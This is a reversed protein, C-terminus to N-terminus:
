KILTLRVGGQINESIITFYYSGPALNLASSNINIITESSALSIKNQYVIQGLANVLTYVADENIDTEIKINTEDSFPNPYGTININKDLEIIGISVNIFQSKTITDSCGHSDWAVLTVDYLGYNNFYHFPDIDSSTLNDGFDWEYTSGSVTQNTFQVVDGSSINNQNVNFAAIPSSAIIEVKHPVSLCGNTNVAKVYVDETTASRNMTNGSTILNALANNGDYWNFTAGQENSSALILMSENECYMPQENTVPEEAVEVFIQNTDINSCGNTDTISYSIDSYGPVSLSPTFQNGTVGAGAYVGGLPSAHNLIVQNGDYCVSGLQNFNIGPKPNVKVTDYKTASCGNADTYAYSVIHNGSTTLVAPDYYSGNVGQGAYSGGAPSGGTLLVANTGICIEDLVDVLVTPSPLIQVNISETSSCGTTTNRYEYGVNTIGAGVDSANFYGSTVALGDYYGGLPYGGTLQFVPETECLPAIPQLNIIPSSNVIIDKQAVNSCGTAPDTITYFISHQGSGAITPDFLGANVGTGTWTGGTPYGQTLISIQANDCYPNISTIAVQPLDNVVINFSEQSVCGDTNTYFYHINHAGIGASSPYFYNNQLGGGSYTGGSPTINNLLVGGNDICMSNLVSSSLPTIANVKVNTSVTGICGNVDTYNLQINHNGVGSIVPNFEDNIVGVGSWYGTISNSIALAYESGNECMDPLPQAIVTIANNVLINQTESEDCGTVPDTYTYTIQHTGAGALSPDFIGNIVGTGTFVGNSPTAGSLLFPTENSCTTPLPAFTVYPAPQVIIGVTAFGSCGTTVENYTYTLVHTGVGALQPDFFGATVGNGSWVGGIPSAGSLIFISENICINSQSSLTVNPSAIVVISQTASGTCGNNSSYEYTITHSGLGAQSPYFYGNIVGTGSFTGGSPFGGVLEIAGENICKNQFPNLSVSPSPMININRPSETTCQTGVDTYSYTIQHTGVGAISPDLIGNSIGNGSYTGGQPYGTNLIISPATECIDQLPLQTVSPIPKVLVPTSGFDSCGTNPDVYTYTIISSGVGATIPDFYGNIVGSGTYTGGVPSGINLLPKAENFCLDSLSAVSVNPAAFVSITISSTSVCGNTNTYEYSVVHNGPGATNPYFYGNNIGTGSYFGGSPSGGNLAFAPDNECVSVVGNITVNPVAYVTISKTTISTCGSVADTYSYSVNHTGVGAVSPYFLGNAVGLGLYSGGLPFGGSLLFPTENECINQFDTLSTVPSPSVYINKSVSSACGTSPDTFSYTIQHTGVGSQTPDFIGNTVGAGSYIGGIPTGGTLAYGQESYCTSAFDVLAVAPTSKVEISIQSASTCGDTNNYTYTLVHTGVGAQSPYFYGNIIGQGSYIGGSPSGNTLEVPTGNQCVPLIPSLSVLPTANVIISETESESCGTITDTYSYTLNHVGAGSVQPDFYNGNTIGTGTWVGGSPTVDTLQFALEGQCIEDKVEIAVYPVGNITINKTIEGSCSSIPDVVTYTIQHVGVGAQSPDFVGNSVYDGTYVGNLPYGGSVLIPTTNYCSPTFDNLTVSPAQKVIISQTKSTGCGTSPNNYTYTINHIGIGAISPYFSGNVVGVGTYIGGSPNGGTLLTPDNSYCIDGIPNLNVPTVAKVTLGKTIDSSCGTTTDIYTYKIQHTGVGANSADFLAGSVGTGSWTGNSPFGGGLIFAPESSCIDTFDSLSVSPNQLVVISTTKESVCNTVPDTYTYTLFHSGVGATAPNFTGNSTGNGTWVGGAPTAGSLIFSVDNYCVPDFNGISINAPQTVTIQSVANDVCGKNNTVTYTVIHTGVGAQSPYFYGAVIGTGSYVGGNPNGGSLLLADSNECIDLLLPLTPNPSANVTINDTVSGSCGNGDVYSYSIVHTGIGADFPDFSGNTVGTGTWSGGSPSEGKLLFTPENECVIGQSGLSLVPAAFVLMKNTVESVCGSNGDVYSYTIDHNGVGSISPDFFGNVVGAGTWSGGSPSAGSLLFTTTNICVPPFLNVIVNPADIVTVNQTMSVECGNNDITYTISHVGVGAVSPYFKSGAVGLGTYMGGSPQGQTLNVEGANLCVEFIPAFSINESPKVNISISETTTCGTAQSVYNYTVQHTGQGAISPNFENGTVGIGSFTGGTISVYYLLDVNSSNECIDAVQNFTVAQTPLIIINKSISNSCGTPLNNFTYTITHTGVGATAPNFLGNSVGNGNYTGGVPSANQLIFPQENVCMSSFDVMSISPKQNITITGVDSASCGNGSTSTYTIQHTGVGLQDPYLYGNIVGNGTWVGNLPSGTNLLTAGDNECVPLFPAVSVNPAPNVTITKMASGDCGNGDSYTYTLVHDGAGATTPNFLNGSVGTGTWSGGSPVGGTLQFDGDNECVEPLDNISVIPNDYVIIPRNADVSCGTGPDTYTYTLDHVGLGANFTSFYGATVGNGTWVGGSPTAGGLELLGSSLCVGNLNSIVVLPTNNVTITTTASSSCGQIEVNYTITHTGVGALQPYFEGNVIGSGSYIGGSPSGINLALKDNDICMNTVPALGALPANIVELTKTSTGECGTIPDAYTYTISHVGIGANNPDFQNNIVGAGSYTGGLPTGGTLTFIGSGNCVNSLDLLTVTPVTRVVINKTATNSCSNVPDIFSYTLAHVGVGATNPYFYGNIIGTGSWVGGLPAGETLQFPQDSKCVEGLDTIAVSIANYVTVTQTQEVSCGNSEIRYFISHTGVGALSPYFKDAVVGPGTYTGGSPSAHILDLASSNQCMSPIPNFVVNEAPLVTITFNAKSNCNGITDILDYQITFTGQGAIAPNFTSGIIGTGSFTGRTPSVYDYLDISSSNECLANVSSLVINQIPKVTVTKTANNSCSTVLDTVTYTLAHTGVGSISPDFLGNAIGNGTWNGGSPSAGTLIFANGEACVDSFNPISLSPVNDVTINTSSINSCGENNVVEYTITHSGVGILSPYFYGSSVGNGTYSGGLPQGNLLELPTGNLCIDLLPSTTVNPASNIIIDESITSTCSNADTYSYTIQHTGVGSVSPDFQSGSVGTGSFTGGSPAQGSLTFAGKNECMSNFSSLSVSPSNLVTISTKGSSECGSIPDTFTYTLFHVGLGANSPDFLGNIIGNGTWLGGLPTAGSLPFSNNNICVADLVPVTVGNGEKVLVNQIATVTCGNSEISYTIQHTGLGSLSPYFYDGIVALGSYTGGSPTGSNLEIPDDNLCADLIPQFAINESPNIQISFQKSSTCGTIGSNAEYTITYTGQGAVSPDLLSDTVGTGSFTGGKPSVFNMLNLSGSNECLPNINSITINETTKVVINKSSTTNCGTNNNNYTYEILHVGVGATQPSFLGNSVGTGTWVGGLPFGGSLIFDSEGVCVDSFDALTVVPSPYIAITQSHEATCGDGNTYTYTVIHSGVGAQSPYLYGGIVGNGSYTGGSPSGGTLTIAGANECLPLFPSLSVNATANVNITNVESSSCGNNDTYLYTVNFTGAGTISPSFKNNVIGQGSWVGGTPTSYVLELDSENDCIDPINSLQIIPNDFVVIPNQKETTCGNNDTLSYTITHAGIGSNSADFFGANVGNGSWVGGSPTANSLAFLPETICISNFNNVSVSPIDNVIVQGVVVSNCGNNSVTYTIDFTGVGSVSPYFYGNIVGDGSYAGGSPTGQNLLIQGTNICVDAVPSMTAIPSSIVIIDENSKAVCGSTPETYNYTLSHTGVGANVIMFENNLVGTGSWTGGTPNGDPLAVNLGGLCVNALSSTSVVPVPKVTITKIVENSCGSIIDNFAYKINHTGVGALLPDFSGNNIGNGTWTGGTPIAGTLIFAQDGVCVDNFSPVSVIPEQKVVISTNAEASCGNPNTKTYTLNQTGVGSVTPYFYGAIVGTGSWVGDSPNGGTLEVESGNACIDLLPSVTTAPSQNVVIDKTTSSACGNVDAYTYTITYTGQGAVSPNFLGGSVGTGTWTGGIPLGGELTIPAENDCNDNFAALSIAPSNVVTITKIVTSECGTIQDTYTYTIPHVGLGANAPDFFGANVGTGAYLGGSPIAGSLVFSAENVCVQNFDNLTVPTGDKIDVQQNASVECGNNTITYTITHTGIGAVTPYLKGAIVGNGSYTGGSPTGTNLLVEGDSLCVDVITQFAINESPNVQIQFQQTSTCGTIGSNAEYTLTVTGQGAVSPDFMTDTVGIGTFTGGIPTVYDMLNIASSNECLPNITAVIINETTKVVLNKSVTKECGSNGDQYTYSISHAGVGATLPNFIGNTVGTGTWTGNIPSGGSLIFQPENVCVPNFDALTVTPAPSVSISQSSSATCGDGNTVAYTVTHSGIGAQTPYYYGGIVGNGSYTGNSPSGGSLSFSNENSCTPLFPALSTNPKENVEQNITESDSCGNIDTFSYTLITTGTGAVLPDFINGSTGSGTWSGGSPTAGTLLVAGENECVDSRNLISVTPNNNVVITKSVKSSCGTTNDTFEYSIAHAGVGSNSADFYGNTVGTGSWVGSPPTAGTLQFLPTTNCVDTFNNLAISPQAEVTIDRSATSVCNGNNVTYTLTHNGQGAISPYFYGNIIGTGSYIGGSPSGSTLNVQAINECVKGSGIPSFGAVPSSIVTINSTKSNSCSTTPDLYTYTIVHTGVGAVSPDFFGASVGLGSYVGGAPSGVLLEIASSGLCVDDFTSINVAPLSKVLINKSITNSCGSLPDTYNYTISHVGIGATFADFFNNTVGTGTYVGNTPNAGNLQFLNENVCVDIFDQQLLYPKERVEVTFTEASSCNNQSVSYTLVHTGVGASQPYFRGGSVGNGSYIGGTPFGNDLVFDSESICVPNVNTLVINVEQYVQLNKTESASCGSSPDAYTYTIPHVGAGAVSPDFSNGSVGTGSYTGGLPSVGLLNITSANTCTSNLDNFTISPVAKVIINKSAISSCGNGDTFTYTIPHVGVGANVPNFQGNSIGSGSYVGGSPLGGSVIFPSTTLCVDQFSSISATPTPYVTIDRSASSSCGNGNEYEYQITFDGAGVLSPYFKGGIVGTGSYTGGSPTGSTLTFETENGCVPLMPSVGTIPSATVEIDRILASTCGNGDTYEYTLDFNGVGSTLPNFETGSVGIGTFSGGTPNVLTSLEKKGGDECLDYLTNFTINPPSNVKIIGSKSESCNTINDTLIYEVQHVGIGASTPNFFGNTVGDGSWVGGQKSVFTSLDLLTNNSCNDSISTLTFTPSPNVTIDFTESSGCGNGTTFNYTITHIGIGAIAPNFNDGSVGNGSYIGGLPSAYDILSIVTGNSCENNIANITINPSNVIDVNSTVVTECGNSNVYTYTIIFNGIGGVTPNFSNGAGGNWTFLGGPVSVYQTLDIDGSLLCHQGINSFLINTNEYVNVTANEEVVCNNADTLSYNLNFIGQGSQGPYFYGNTVSTGSWIGGSPSAGTLEVGTENTCVDSITPMSLSPAQKVEVTFPFNVSCGNNSSYIFSIQHTGVGATTPNFNYGVVGTGSYVGTNPSVYDRLDTIIGNDCLDSQSIQTVTPTGIVSVTQTKSVSCGSVPDLFDFTLQHNGLGALAPNFTSGIVGAGSFTGTSPNVFNLLNVSTGTICVDGIPNFVVNSTINVTINKSIVDSCGIQDTVTYTIPHVGVGASTPNFFGASVGNGAYTGGTPSGGSLLFVDDNDCYNTFPVHSIVPLSNVYVVIIETSTCGGSNEYSYIISENTGILASPNFQNGIIGSGTPKGAFSGGTPSVYDELNIIPDNKCMDPIYVPIITTSESVVVNISKVIECGVGQYTYDLTYTGGNAIQSPYFVGNSVGAGTFTGGAPSVFPALVIPADGTCVSAIPNFVVTEVPSVTITHPTTVTCNGDVYTYTLNHVGAGASAPYFYGASIGTGTWTGNSPTANLIFPDENVCAINQTTIVVSPSATVSLNLTGTNICGTAQDTYSYTIVHNGIGATQASFTTQDFLVGNGSFTGGNPSVYNMLSFDSTGTCFTPYPAITIVPLANTNITIPTANESPCYLYESCVQGQYKQCSRDLNYFNIIPTAPSFLGTIMRTSGTSSPIEFHNPLQAISPNQLRMYYSGDSNQHLDNVVIDFTENECGDFTSNHITVDNPYPRINLNQFTSVSASKCYNNVATVSLTSNSNLQYATYSTGAGITTANGDSYEWNYTYDPNPSDVTVTIEGNQCAAGSSLSATPTPPTTCSILTWQDSANSLRNITKDYGIIDSSSSAILYNDIGELKIVPNDLSQAYRSGGTYAFVKVPSLTSKDYKVIVLPSGSNFDYPSSLNLQNDGVVYSLEIEDGDSGNTVFFPQNPSKFVTTAVTNLGVNSELKYDKTVGNYYLIYSRGGDEDYIFDVISVNLYNSTFGGQIAYSYDAPVNQTEYFAMGVGVYYKNNAQDWSYTLLTYYILGEKYIAKPSTYAGKWENSPWTEFRRESRLLTSTHQIYNSGDWTLERIAIHDYKLTPDITTAFTASELIFVSGGDTVVDQITYNIIDETTSAFETRCMEQTHTDSGSLDYVNLHYLGNAITGSVQPCDTGAYDYVIVYFENKVENFTVSTIKQNSNDSPEIDITTVLMTNLDTITLQPDIGGSYNPFNFGGGHTNIFSYLKNNVVFQKVPDEKGAGGIVLEKEIVRDNPLQAISLNGLFILTLLIIRKM